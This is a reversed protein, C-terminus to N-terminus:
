RERRRRRERKGGGRGVDESSAGRGLDGGEAVFGRLLDKWSKKGEVVEGFGTALKEVMETQGVGEGGKGGGLLGALGGLGGLGPGGGADGTRESRRWGNGYRDLPRGDRDFRDPLVEIEDSSHPSLSRSRSRSHHQHRDHRRRSHKSSQTPRDSSPDSNRRHRRRHRKVLSNPDDRNRNRDRERDRVRPQVRNEAQSLPQPQPVRVLASSGIIGDDSPTPSVDPHAVDHEHTHSGTKAATDHIAALRRSSTPSLPAFVVSKNTPKTTSPSPPPSSFPSLTLTSPISPTRRRQKLNPDPRTKPLADRFPNIHSGEEIHFPDRTFQEDPYPAVPPPPFYPTASAASTAHVPTPVSKSAVFHAQDSPRDDVSVNHGINPPYGYPDPHPIQPQNVHEAPNYAPINYAPIGEQHVQTTSTTTHLTFGPQPQPPPPFANNQPYYSGGSAHPPSPSYDDQYDRAYYNEEPVPGEEYRRRERERDMEKKEKRKKYQNIGIAAAATGAAAGAINRVRSRSRSRSRRRDDSSSSRSHRRRHSRNRSKTAGYAAGAGGAALAPDFDYGRQYTTTEQHTYVPETGYQVMGLEPDVGPDSYVGISRARSRSRRRSRRRDRSRDDEVDLERTDEKAKRNEYLGAVAAGALGAGAIEAGTRIRSKSRSGSRKRSKSRIHNVIGAVAATAAGAKAISAARHKPNAHKSRSRSRRDDDYSDYDDYSRRRRSVSRTRSRGRGAEEKNAQRNSVYKAAAAAALGAAALGLATKIKRHSQRSSSRSRSRSYDRYRSRARTIVEAGIAGLAAGGVVNRGRHGDGDGTKNRHNALIAAAGAGALAGEALHRRHHPSGSRSRERRIVKRKVVYDEGDSYDRDSVSDRPRIAVDRRDYEVDEERRAPGVERVDKRYYYEDETRRPEPREVEQRVETQRVIQYEQERPPLVIPPAPPAEQVIIQQPEPARQRIIIPQPPPEPRDYYETERTYRDLEYPEERRESRKEVRVIDTERVNVDREVEWPRASARDWDRREPERQDREYVVTRTREREREREPERIPEREMYRESTFTSGRASHVDIASRPRQPEIFRESRRDIKIREGGARPIDLRTTSRRDIEIDDARSPAVRYRQVTRYSGDGGARSRSVTSSRDDDDSAYGERYSRTVRTVEPM